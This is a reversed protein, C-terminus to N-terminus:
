SIEVNTSFPKTIPSSHLTNYRIIWVFEDLELIESIM